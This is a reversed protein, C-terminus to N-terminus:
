HEALDLAHRTDDNPALHVGRRCCAVAFLRRQRDSLFDQAFAFMEYLRDCRNWALEDM